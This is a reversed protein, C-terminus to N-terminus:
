QAESGWDETMIQAELVVDFMMDINSVSGSSISNRTRSKIEFGYSELEYEKWGSFLRAAVLLCKSEATSSYM